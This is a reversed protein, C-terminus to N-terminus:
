WGDGAERSPLHGDSEDPAPVRRRDRGWTKETKTKCIGEVYYERTIKVNTYDGLLEINNDYCYSLLTENNYLM